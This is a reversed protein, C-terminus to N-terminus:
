DQLGITVDLERTQDLNLAYIICTDFELFISMSPDIFSHFLILSLLPLIIFTLIPKAPSEIPIPDVIEVGCPMVQDIEEVYPDKLLIEELSYEVEIFIRQIIM